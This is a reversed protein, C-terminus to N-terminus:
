KRLICSNPTSALQQQWWELSIKSETPLSGPYPFLVKPIEFPALISQLQSFYNSSPSFPEIAAVVAQGWKPDDMHFVKAKSLGIERLAAEVILPDVKKGATNIMADKRGVISISSDEHKTAIDQTHLAKPLLKEISENKIIYHCTWPANIVLEQDLIDFTVQNLAFLQNPNPEKNSDSIFCFACTESMGYSYRIPLKFENAKKVLSSDSHAGGILITDCKKLQAIHENDTLMRSLQLPVLSTGTYSEKSNSTVASNTILSRMFPMIGGVHRPSIPNYWLTDANFNLAKAQAKAAQILNNLDHAIAKVAGTSGSTPIMVMGSLQEQHFTVTAIWQQKQPESWAPDLLAVCKSSLLSAIIKYFMTYPNQDWLFITQELDKTRQIEWNIDQCM